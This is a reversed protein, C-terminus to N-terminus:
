NCTSAMNLGEPVLFRRLLETSYHRPSGEETSFHSILENSDLKLELNIPASDYSNQGM